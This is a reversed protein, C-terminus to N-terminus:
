LLDYFILVPIQWFELAEPLIDKPCILCVQLKKALWMPEMNVPAFFFSVFFLVSHFMSSARYCEPAAKSNFMKPQLQFMCDPSPMGKFRLCSSCNAWSSQVFYRDVPAFTENLTISITHNCRNGWFTTSRFILNLIGDNKDLGIENTQKKFLNEQVVIWSCHRNKM